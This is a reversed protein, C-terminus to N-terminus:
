EEEAQQGSQERYQKPTVGFRNRFLRNFYSQNPYGCAKGVDVIKMRGQELLNKAQQMRYDTLYKILSEGAEQKFIYSVYAPSLCVRDAIGELSLDDMYENKVIRIIEAVTRGVDTQQGQQMSDVKDMVRLFAEEVEELGSCQMIEETTEFLLSKHYIGYEEYLARVIDLFTYKAYMASSSKEDKLCSIYDGMYAAVATLNRDAISKLVQQKMQETRTLREEKKGNVGGTYIVGAFYSFTDERLQEIEQMNKGFDALGFCQKGVIMSVRERGQATMDLYLRQAMRGIRDEDMRNGDYLLINALNPYLNVYEHGVQLDRALMQLFVEYDHEFYNGETEISFVTIYKNRLRIGYQELNKGIEDHSAKSNMLKFLLLSKDAVLLSEKREEWQRRETCIRIVKDMVKSFEEVEIPKLLYNVANVECAQRAYEFEGYASFIIIVISSDYAHVARALELGDMYPMKVDTLLIDVRHEKIHALAKKGNSAEAVELPLAFKGILFRIGDRETKEDDVLLIKLMEIGWKRVMRQDKERKYLRNM